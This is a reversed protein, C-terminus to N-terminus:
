VIGIVNFEPSCQNIIYNEIEEIFPRSVLGDMKIYEISWNNIDNDYEYAKTAAQSGSTSKAHQLDKGDNLFVEKHRIIRNRINGSGVYMLVDNHYILYVGRDKGMKPLTNFTFRHSLSITTENLDQIQKTINIQYSQKCKNFIDDVDITKPKELEPFLM